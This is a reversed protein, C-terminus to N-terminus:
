ATPPILVTDIVHVVGNSAEIDYREITASGVMVIDGDVTVELAQGSATTFSEGSMGMVMEADEMMNVIHYNLIAQLMEAGAFVEEQSMGAEALYSDFAEDTPIFLTFPGEGHFDDMIGAAGLADLFIGLDGEAAAVELVDGMIEEETTTTAAETTTAAPAATTSTASDGCAAALFALLAVLVILRRSSQTMTPGKSISQLEVYARDRKGSFNNV